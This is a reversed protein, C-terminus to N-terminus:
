DWIGEDRIEYGGGIMELSQNLRDYVLEPLKGSLVKEQVGMKKGTQEGFEHIYECGKKQQKPGTLHHKDAFYSISFVYGVPVKDKEYGTPCVEELLEDELCTDGGVIFLQKRDGSAGLRVIEAENNRSFSLVLLEELNENFVELEILEGLQALESRFQHEEVEEFTEEVDRGHFGKAVDEADELEDRLEQIEQPNKLLRHRRAEELAVALSQGKSMGEQRLYAIKKKVWGRAKSNSRM